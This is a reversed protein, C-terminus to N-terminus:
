FFDGGIQYASKTKGFVEYTEGCTKETVYGNIFIASFISLLGIFWLVITTTGPRESLIGDSAGELM